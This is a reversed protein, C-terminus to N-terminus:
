SISSALPSALRGTDSKSSFYALQMLFLISGLCTSVILPVLGSSLVASAIFILSCLVFVFSMWLRDYKGSKDESFGILLGIADVVLCVFGLATDAVAVNFLLPGSTIMISVGTLAIAALGIGLYLLSVLIQKANEAYVASVIEQAQDLSGNKVMEMGAAGMAYLLNEESEGQLQKLLAREEKVQNIQYRFYLSYGIFTLASFTYFFTAGGLLSEGVGTLITSALLATKSSTFFLAFDLFTAPILCGSAASNLTGRVCQFYGLAKGKLDHVRESLRVKRYGDVASAMGTGLVFFRSPWSLVQLGQSKYQYQLSDTLSFGGYVSGTMDSTVATIGRVRSGLIPMASQKEGEERRQRIELLLM